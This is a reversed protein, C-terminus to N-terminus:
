LRLPSHDTLSVSLQIEVTEEQWDVFLMRAVARELLAVTVSPVLETEAELQYRCTVTQKPLGSVQGSVLIQWQV